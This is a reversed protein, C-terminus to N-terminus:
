ACIVRQTAATYCRARLLLELIMLAATPQFLILSPRRFLRAHVNTTTSCILTTVSYGSLYARFAQTCAEAHDDTATFNTTPRRPCFTLSSLAMLSESLYLAWLLNNQGSRSITNCTSYAVGLSLPLYNSLGLVSETVWHVLWRIPLLIRLLSHVLLARELQYSEYFLVVQHASLDYGRRGAIVDIWVRNNSAAWINRVMSPVFASSLIWASTVISM